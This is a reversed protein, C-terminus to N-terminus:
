AYQLDPVASPQAIEHRVPTHLAGKEVRLKSALVERTLRLLVSPANVRPCLKEAGVVTFGLARCYYAVHRPNVEIFLDTLDDFCTGIMYLYRFMGTLVLNSAPGANVAFRTLESVRRGAERVENVEQQYGTDVILGETSDLGLTVTGICRSYQMAVVTFYSTPNPLMDIWQDSGCNNSADYGRWGYRNTVLEGARTEEESTSAIHIDINSAELLREINGLAMSLNVDGGQGSGVRDSLFSNLQQTVRDVSIKRVAAFEVVNM